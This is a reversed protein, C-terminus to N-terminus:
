TREPTSGLTPDLLSVIREAAEGPDAVSRSGAYAALFSEFMAAGTLARSLAATDVDTPLRGRATETDLYHQIRLAPGEPGAGRSEMAARHTALLDTEGFLSGAIPFSEVYFDLLQRVLTALNGRVDGHGVLETPDSLHPLRESLVALFVAQKDSFHKYLLAESCGAVRAIEKTTTRALGRDHM